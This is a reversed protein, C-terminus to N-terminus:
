MTLQAKRETQLVSAWMQVAGGHLWWSPSRNLLRRGCGGEWLEGQTDIRPLLTTKDGRAGDAGRASGGGARSVPQVTANPSLDSAGIEVPAM